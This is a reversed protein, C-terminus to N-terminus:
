GQACFKEFSFLGGFCEEKASRGGMGRGGGGLFDRAAREVERIVETLREYPRTVIQEVETRGGGFAMSSLLLAGSTAMWFTLLVAVGRNKMAEAEEALECHRRSSTWLIPSSTVSTQLRAGAPSRSLYSSDKVPRVSDPGQPSM